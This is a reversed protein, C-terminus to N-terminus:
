QTAARCCEGQGRSAHARARKQAPPKSPTRLRAIQDELAALQSSPGHDTDSMTCHQTDPYNVGTCRHVPVPRKPGKRPRAYGAPGPGAGPRGRVIKLRLAGWDPARFGRLRVPKPRAGPQVPCESM